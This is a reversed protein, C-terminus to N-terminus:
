VILDTSQIIRKFSLFDIPSDQTRLEGDYTESPMQIAINLAFGGSEHGANLLSNYPDHPLADTFGPAPTHMTTGSPGYM